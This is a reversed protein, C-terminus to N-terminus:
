LFRLVALLLVPNGFALAYGAPGCNTSADICGVQPKWRFGHAQLLKSHVMACLLQLELRGPQHLQGAAHGHM